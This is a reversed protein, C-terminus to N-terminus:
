RLSKRSRRGMVGCASVFFLIMSSSPEPVATTLVTFGLSQPTAGDIGSAEWVMQSYSGSFQIAFGSNVTNNGENAGIILRNGSLNPSALNFDLVTPLPLPPELIFEHFNDDVFNFLLIPDVVAQSFTITTTEFGAGGMDLTAAENLVGASGIGPVGDSGLNTSWNTSLFLGGNRLSTPAFVAENDVSVSIGGLTGSILGDATSDGNDWNVSILGGRVPANLNLLLLLCPLFIYYKILNGGLQGSKNALRSKHVTRTNSGYVKSFVHTRNEVVDLKEVNKQLRLQAPVSLLM